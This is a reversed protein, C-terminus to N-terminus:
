LSEHPFNTYLYWTEALRDMFETHHFENTWHCHFQNSNKLYGNEELYVQSFLEIYDNSYIDLWKRGDLIRQLLM